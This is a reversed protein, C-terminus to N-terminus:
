GKPEQIARVREYCPIRHVRPEGGTEVLSADLITGLVKWDTVVRMDNTSESDFNMIFGKFMAVEWFHYEKEYKMEVKASAGEKLWYIGHMDPFRNFRLRLVIQM